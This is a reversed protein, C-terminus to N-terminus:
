TGQTSIDLRIYSLREDAFLRATQDTELDQFLTAIQSRRYIHLMSTQLRMPLRYYYGDPLGHSIYM